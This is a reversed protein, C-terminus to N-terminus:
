NAALAARCSAALAAGGFGVAVSWPNAPAGACCIPTCGQGRWRAAPRAESETAAAEDARAIHALLAACLATCLALVRMTLLINRELRGAVRVTANVTMASNKYDGEVGAHHRRM